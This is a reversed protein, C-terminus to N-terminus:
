SGVLALLGRKKGSSSDTTDMAEFLRHADVLFPKYRANVDLVFVLDRDELFGGIPSFHGHGEGFLPTRHFNIVYRRDPDNSRRLHERFEEYTLDRLVTPHHHTTVGAVEALEDLTLGGFCIGLLCKGTGHLISDESRPVGFSREVNALSSPGCSSSNSQADVHHDFLRAVPLNWATNLLAEDQYSPSAKISIGSWRPSSRESRVAIAAAAGPLCILAAAIGVRKRSLPRSSTASANAANM